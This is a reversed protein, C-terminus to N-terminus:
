KKFVWFKYGLFNWAASALAALIISVKLWAAPAIAIQPGVITTFLWFATVDIITGMLTIAFFVGLEKKIFEKHPHEFAWYKNGWYKALTAILFTVTKITLPHIFLVFSTIWGFFEFLKLDVAMAFTGVLFFKGAQYIAHWKRGIIQCLWLGSLALLPLFFWLFVFSWFGIEIELTKLFDGIVFGVMKGSILSFIIDTAKM